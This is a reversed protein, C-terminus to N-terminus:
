AALPRWKAAIDVRGLQQAVTVALGALSKHVEAHQVLQLSGEEPLSWLTAAEPSDDRWGEEILRLAQSLNGLRAMCLARNYLNTQTQSYGLTVALDLYELAEAPSEPLLCFGANNAAGADHPSQSLAFEFLAAAATYQRNELLKVAQAYMKASLTTSMGAPGFPQPEKTEAAARQAIEAQLDGLEIRREDMVALCCAAPNQNRMWRHELHLSSTSWDSLHTISLREVAWRYEELLVKNPILNALLPAQASRPPKLEILDSLPASLLWPLAVDALEVAIRRIRGLLDAHSDDRAASALSPLLGRWTAAFEPTPAEPGGRIGSSPPLATTGVLIKLQPEGSASDQLVMDLLVSIIEPGLGYRVLSDGDLGRSALEAAIGLVAQTRGQQGPLCDDPDLLLAGRLAAVLSVTRWEEAPRTRDVLLARRADFPEDM